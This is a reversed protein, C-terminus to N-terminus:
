TVANNYADFLLFVPKPLRFFLTVNLLLVSIHVHRIVSELSIPDGSPSFDFLDPCFRVPITKSCIIKM